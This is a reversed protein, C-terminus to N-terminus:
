AGVSGWAPVVIFRTRACEKSQQVLADPGADTKGLVLVTLKGALACGPGLTDKLAEQGAETLTLTGSTPATLVGPTVVSAAADPPPNAAWAFASVAAAVVVGAIILAGGVRRWRWALRRYSVQMVFRYIVRDWFLFDEQAQAATARLAADGQNAEGDADVGCRGAAPGGPAAGRICETAQVKALAELEAGSLPSGSLWGARM